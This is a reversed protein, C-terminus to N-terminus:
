QLYRVLERMGDDLVALLDAGEDDLWVEYATLALALSVHGVMRPLLDDPQSGSHPPRRVRRHGRAVRRVAARLAGAAGPDPLILRM